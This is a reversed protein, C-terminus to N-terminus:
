SFEISNKNVKKDYVVKSLGELMLLHHNDNISLQPLNATIGKVFYIKSQWWEEIEIM